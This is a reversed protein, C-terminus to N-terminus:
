EMSSKIKIVENQLQSLMLGFKENVLITLSQSKELNKEGGSAFELQELLSVIKNAKLMALSGKLKHAKNFVGQLDNESLLRELEKLDKPSNDLFFGLVIITSKKDGLEELLATDFLVEEEM